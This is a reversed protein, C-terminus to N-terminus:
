DKVVAARKDMACAGTILLSEGDAPELGLVKRRTHLKAAYLLELRFYEGWLLTEQPCLRLARQMLSRRLLKSVGGSSSM